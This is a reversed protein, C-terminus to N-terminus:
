LGRIRLRMAWEELDRHRRAFIVGHITRIKLELDEMTFTKTGTFGLYSPVLLIGIYDEISEALDLSDKIEGDENNREVHAVFEDTLRVEEFENVVLVGEGELAETLEDINDWTVAM